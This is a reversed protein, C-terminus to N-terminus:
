EPAGPLDFDKALKQWTEKLAMKNKSVNTKYWRDYSKLSKLIQREQVLIGDEIWVWPRQDKWDIGDTKNMTESRFFNMPNNIALFEDATIEYSFLASLDAARKPLLSGIPCWMTLWRIEFHELAWRVFETAYPAKEGHKVTGWVILTDDIDLYMVRSKSM